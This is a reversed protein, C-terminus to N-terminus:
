QLARRVQAFADDASIRKAIGQDVEDLRRLIEADWASEVESNAGQHIADLQMEALRARDAPQLTQAQQSLTIVLDSMAPRRNHFNHFGPQEESRNEDDENANSKTDHGNGLATKLKTTLQVNM